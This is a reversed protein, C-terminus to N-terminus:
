MTPVTRLKDEWRTLLHVIINTGFKYTEYLAKPDVNRFYLDRRRWMPENIAMFRRKEDISFDIQKKEDLGFQWMDGYDNATYIVAIEGGYGLLTYVPEEYHNMGAPVARVDSYYNRTFIPHGAAIPQWPQNPDPVLRRMERRFAIDFRSRQGPLSSDGWICGGRRLYEGLVEVEQDTLHFDRHGTFWIFPPKKAFIEESTLELPVPQAEAKLKERSLKGIVYLLNTLSGKWIAGDELEVTSAWDGGQYKAVYATFAFERSPLPKSMSSRGGVAWNETFKQIGKAIKPDLANPNTPAFQPKTPRGTAVFGTGPASPIPISFTPALPNRAVLADIQAPTNNLNPVSPNTATSVNSLTPQPNPPTQVPHDDAAVIERSPAEFDNIKEAQKFLVASGLLLVLIAHLATSFTLSQIRSAWTLLPVLSKRKIPPPTTTTHPVLQTHM